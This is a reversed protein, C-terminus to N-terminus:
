VQGFGRYENMAAYKRDFRMQSPDIGHMLVKAARKRTRKERKVRKRSRRGRLRVEASFLAGYKVEVLVTADMGNNQRKEANNIRFYTGNESVEVKTDSGTWIKRPVLRPM